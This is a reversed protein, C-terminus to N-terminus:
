CTLPCLRAAVLSQYHPSSLSARSTMSPSAQLIKATPFLIVFTTDCLRYAIQSSYLLVQLSSAPM